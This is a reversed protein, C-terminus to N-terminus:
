GGGVLQVIEFSDGAAVRTAEWERKPLIEMNREIAVRDARLGLHKLLEIVNMAQPLEQPEGNVRIDVAAKV